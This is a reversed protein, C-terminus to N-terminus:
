ASRKLSTAIQFYRLAKEKEGKKLYSDVLQLYSETLSKITLNDPFNNQTWASLDWGLLSELKPIYEKYKLALVKKIIPKVPTSPQFRFPNIKSTLLERNINEAFSEDVELHKFCEGLLKKPSKIIEDYNLILIQDEPFVACWNKINEIYDCQRLCTKNNLVFDILDPDNSNDSIDFNNHNAYMTLMSWSRQVPNRIIYIIKVDPLHQYILKIRKRNQISYHPTIDGTIGEQVGFSKYYNVIDEQTPNKGKNKCFCWFHREKSWKEKEPKHFFIQPHQSLNTYLWTTGAKQAGICLFTPKIFKEKM